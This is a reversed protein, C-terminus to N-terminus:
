TRHQGTHAYRALLAAKRAYTDAPHSIMTDEPDAGPPTPDPADPPPDDDEGPGQDDEGTWGLAQAAEHCWARLEDLEGQVDDRLRRTDREQLWAAWASVLILVLVTAATIVVMGDLEHRTFTLM